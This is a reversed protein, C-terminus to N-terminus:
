CSPSRIKESRNLTACANTTACINHASFSAPPRFEPQHLPASEKSITLFPGTTLFLSAAQFPAVHCALGSLSFLAADNPNERIPPRLLRQARQRRLNRDREGVVADG